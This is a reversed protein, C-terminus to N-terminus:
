SYPLEQGFSNIYTGGGFGNPNYANTAGGPGPTYNPPHWGAGSPTFPSDSYGGSPTQFMSSGWPTMGAFSYRGPSGGYSQSPIIAGGQGAGGPHGGNQLSPGTAAKAAPASRVAPPPTYHFGDYLAAPSGQLPPAGYMYPAVSPAASIAPQGGSPPLAAPGFPAPGEGAAAPSIGLPDGPYPNGRYYDSPIRNPTGPTPGGSAYQPYGGMAIDASGAPGGFAEPLDVLGGQHHLMGGGTIGLPPIGEYPPNAQRAKNATQRDIARQYVSSSAVQPYGGVSSQPGLPLGEGSPYSRASLGAGYHDPPFSPYPAGPAQTAAAAQDGGWNIGGFNNLISRISGIGSPADQQPSVPAPAGGPAASPAIGYAAPGPDYNGAAASQMLAKTAQAEKAAIAPGVDASNASWPNVGFMAATQQKMTVPPRYDALQGPTYDLAQPAATYGRVDAENASWPNVGLGVATQQKMAVAPSNPLGAGMPPAAGMPGIGSPGMASELATSGPDTSPPGGPVSGGPSYAPPNQPQVGWTSPFGQPPVSGGPAYAPHSALELASRVQPGAAGKGPPEVALGYRQEAARIAKEVGSGAIQDIPGKYLGASALQNELNTVAPGRSGKRIVPAPKGAAMATAAQEAPTLTPQDGLAVAAGGANISLPLPKRPNGQIDAQIQGLPVGAWTSGKVIARSGGIGNRPGPGDYTWARPNGHMGVHLTNSGFGFDYFGAQKAADLLQLKKDNSMGSLDIDFAMGVDHDSKGGEFAHTGGLNSSAGRAVTLPAGFAAQVAQLASLARANAGRVSGVLQTYPKGGAGVFPTTM